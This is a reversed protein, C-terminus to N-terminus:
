RVYERCQGKINSEGGEQTGNQQHWGHELTHPMPLLGRTKSYELTFGCYVNSPGRSKADSLCTLIPGKSFMSAPLFHIYVTNM